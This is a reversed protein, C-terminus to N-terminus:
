ESTSQESEASQPTSRLQIRIGGVDWFDNVFVIKGADNFEYVSHFKNFIKRGTEIHTPMSTGYVAVVNPNDNQPYVSGGFFMAKKM